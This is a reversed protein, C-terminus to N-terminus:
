EMYEKMDELPADFDHSMWIKGKLSGYGGRKKLKPENPKEPQKKSLFTQIVHLVAAKQEDTLLSFQQYFLHDATM